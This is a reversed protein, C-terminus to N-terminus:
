RAATPLPAAFLARFSQSLPAPTKRATQAMTIFAAFADAGRQNKSCQSVKRAIVAPRLIREARNNTPEVGETKLFRLLRGRDHQIGIGNLLRQNDDDRLMRNRLHCTLKEDLERYGTQCEEPTLDSRAHWLALGERLLLNLTNGFQCARGQKTEVVDTVNRLLHALCKQQAIGDLEEADYSKGRDSVLVGKYDAPIIERVEENRHQFRIQYVTSQGTDFGMLFAPRGGIRWGTDDTYVAPTERVADRLGEYAVGVPGEARRLADQTVASQTISVGTLEGLIAPVKRVPVGMGYHLVHAAAMVGPGVRHATAGVQDAALGPATGRVRKGCRRCRCVPVRYATVVPQPHLPLETTTAVEESVQELHGGCAPCCEPAQAIVTQTPPQPPATRRLFRGEGPKRGPRKPAAQPPGKSFPAAQRHQSRKLREIEARLEANQRVLEQILAILEERSLEDLPAEPSM